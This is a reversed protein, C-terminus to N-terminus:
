DDLSQTILLGEYALTSGVVKSLVIKIYYSSRRVEKGWVMVFQLPEFPITKKKRKPVMEGYYNFKRVCLWHSVLPLLM